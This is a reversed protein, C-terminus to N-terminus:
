RWQRVIMTAPGVPANQWAFPAADGSDNTDGSDVPNGHCAGLEFHCMAIGLGIEAQVGDLAEARVTHRDALLTFRFPQKGLASPALAAASLGAVFWAPADALTGSEVAGLMDLSKARHAVGPRAAHGIAIVAPMREGDLMRWSGHHDNTEHLVAWGTDLGMSVAGLAFLEGFYGVRWDLDRVAGPEGGVAGAGTTDGGTTNAITADTGGKDTGILAACWRVNRFRGYHTPCGGFADTEDHILQIDLDGCANLRQILRKLSQVQDDSIPTEDFARTAHRATMAEIIHM